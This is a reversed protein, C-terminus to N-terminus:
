KRFYTRLSYVYNYLFRPYDIWLLMDLRKGRDQWLLRMGMARMRRREVAEIVVVVGVVGRERVRAREM